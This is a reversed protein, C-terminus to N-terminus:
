EKENEKLKWEIERKHKTPYELQMWRIDSMLIRLDELNELNYYGRIIGKRGVLVYKSSYRLSELSSSDTLEPLPLRYGKDIQQYVEEQNGGLLFWKYDDIKYQQVLQELRALTDISPAVTHAVLFVEKDETFEEQLMKYYENMSALRAEDYGAFFGVILIKDKADESTFRDGSQTTFSFDPITHWLTDKFSVKNPQQSDASLPYFRKLRRKEPMGQSDFVFYFALPIIVAILFALATKHM